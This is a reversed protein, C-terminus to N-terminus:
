AGSYGGPQVRRGICCQLRMSYKLRHLQVRPSLCEKSQDLRKLFAHQIEPVFLRQALQCLAPMLGKCTLSVTTASTAIMELSVVLWVLVGINSNIYVHM